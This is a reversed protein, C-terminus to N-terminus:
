KLKTPIFSIFKIILYLFFEFYWLLSNLYLILHFLITKSGNLNLILAFVKPVFNIIFIFVM